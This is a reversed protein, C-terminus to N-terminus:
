TRAPRLGDRALKRSQGSTSGEAALERAVIVELQWSGFEATTEQSAESM